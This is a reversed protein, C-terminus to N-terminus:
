QAEDSSSKAVDEVEQETHLIHGMKDRKTALYNRTYKTPPVELPVREVVELGYGDLAAFKRPNNTMLRMRRVGLDVLVQAGLGYDRMDVPFGLALNAEVIDM